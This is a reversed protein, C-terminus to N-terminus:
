KMRKILDEIHIPTYDIHEVSVNIYMPDPVKSKPLLVLNQHIHGHVNWMVPHKQSGVSGAHIPYHSMIFPKSFEKWTKTVSIKKFWKAYHHIDLTDHNGLLLRKKGNLRRMINDFATPDKGKMWVDGLHYVYDGPGVVKNWNQIMIEDMEEVSSFPRIKNGKDDMFNLFNAHSWHTDSIVWYNKM